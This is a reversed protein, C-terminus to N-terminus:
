GDLLERKKEEFEAESVIGQDRLDAWERLQETVSEGGDATEGAAEGSRGAGSRGASPQEGSSQGAGDAAAPENAAPAPGGAARDSGTTTAGVQRAARMRDRVFALLERMESEDATVNTVRYTTGDADLVLDYTLGEEYGTAVVAEYPVDLTRKTFSGTRLTLHVGEDDIELSMAIADLEEGGEARLRNPDARFRVTEDSM